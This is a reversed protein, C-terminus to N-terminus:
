PLVAWIEAARNKETGAESLLTSGGMGVAHMVNAIGCKDRLVTLVSQAREQSIRLNAKEDGTKDAYGLVVFVCTADQLLAQLHPSKTEAELKGIEAASLSTKGSAFPITILKGMRRAREVSMYLKDKNETSVNPMLDIRKLVESKVRQTERNQVDLDPAAASGAVASASSAGTHSDQPLSGPQHGPQQQQQQPAPAPTTAATAPRVVGAPAAASAAMISKEREMRKAQSYVAISTIIVLGAIGGLILTPILKPSSIAPMTVPTLPQQCEPCVFEDHDAIYLTEHRYALLCGAYNTCKGQRPM